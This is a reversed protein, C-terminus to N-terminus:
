YIGYRPAPQDTERVGQIEPAKSDYLAERHTGDQDHLTLVAARRAPVSVGSTDKKVVASAPQTGSGNVPAVKETTGCGQPDRRRVRRTGQPGEDTTGEEPAPVSSGEQDNRAGPHSDESTEPAYRWHWSATLWTKLPEPGHYVSTPRM